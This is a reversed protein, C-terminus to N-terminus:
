AAPAKVKETLSDWYLHLACYALVIGLNASLLTGITAGRGPLVFWEVVSAFCLVMIAAAGRRNIGITLAAWVTLGAFAIVRFLHDQWELAETPAATITKVALLVAICGTLGKAALGVRGKLWYARTPESDAPSIPTVTM